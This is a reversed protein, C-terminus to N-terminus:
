NIANLILYFTAQQAFLFVHLIKDKSTQNANAFIQRLILFNTKATVYTLNQFVHVM